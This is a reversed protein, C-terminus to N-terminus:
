LLSRAQGGSDVESVVSPEPPVTLQVKFVPAATPLTADAEGRGEWYIIRHDAFREKMFWDLNQKKEITTFTEDQEFDGARMQELEIFMKMNRLFQRELM